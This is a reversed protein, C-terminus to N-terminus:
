DQCLSPMKKCIKNLNKALDQTEYNIQDTIIDKETANRDSFDKKITLQLNKRKEVLQLFDERIFSVEEPMKEAYDKEFHSNIVTEKQLVNFIMDKAEDIANKLREQALRSNELALRQSYDNIAQNVKERCSSCYTSNLRNKLEECLATAQASPQLKKLQETKVAFINKYLKDELGLILANLQSVGDSNYNDFPFSVSHLITLDNEIDKADFTGSKKENSSYKKMTLVINKLNKLNNDGDLYVEANTMISAYGSSFENKFVADKAFEKQRADLVNKLQRFDNFINLYMRGFDDTTRNKFNLNYNNIDSKLKVFVNLYEILKVEHNYIEATLLGSEYQKKVKALRAEVTESTTEDGIVPESIYKSRYNVIVVFPYDHFDLLSSIQAAKLPKDSNDNLYSALKEFNLGTNQVHSPIMSYISVSAIRRSFDQSDYLRITSSFKYESKGTKSIILRSLEGIFDQTASLPATTWRSVTKLQSAAFEFIRNEKEKTLIEANIKCDVKGNLSSIPLNDILRIADYSDTAYTRAGNEGESVAFNFVPYCVEQLPTGEIAATIFVNQPLDSGTKKKKQRNIYLSNIIDQFKSGNFLYLDSTLYHWEGNFVYDMDSSFEHKVIMVDQANVIKVSMFVTIVWLLLKKM